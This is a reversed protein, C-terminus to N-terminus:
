ISNRANLVRNHIDYSTLHPFILNILLTYNSIKHADYKILLDYFLRSM